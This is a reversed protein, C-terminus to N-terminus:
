RVVYKNIGLVSRPKASPVSGSERLAAVPAPPNQKGLPEDKKVGERVAKALANSMHERIQALTCSQAYKKVGSMVQVQSVILGQVLLTEIEKKQEAMAQMTISRLEISFPAFVYETRYQEFLVKTIEVAAAVNAIALTSAKAAALLVSAQNGATATVSQSVKTQRDIQAIADFYNSCKEDVYAIGITLSDQPTKGIFHSEDFNATSYDVLQPGSPISPALPPLDPGCGALAIGLFLPLSLRM